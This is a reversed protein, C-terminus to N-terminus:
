PSCSFIRYDYHGPDLFSVSWAAQVCKVEGYVSIRYIYHGAQTSDKGFQTKVFDALKALSPFVPDKALYRKAYVVKLAQARSVNLNHVELTILGALPLGLWLVVFIAKRSIGGKQNAM